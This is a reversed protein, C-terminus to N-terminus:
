ALRTLMSRCCVPIRAEDAIKSSPTIHYYAFTAFVISRHERKRGGWHPAPGIANISHILKTIQHHHYYAFSSLADCTGRIDTPEQKLTGHGLERDTGVLSVLSM